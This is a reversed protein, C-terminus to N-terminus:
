IKLLYAAHSWHKSYEMRWTQFDQTLDPHLQTTAASDCYDRTNSSILVIPFGFDQQRLHDALSFYEEIIVCDKAQEGKRSPRKNSIVRQMALTNIRDEASLELSNALVVEALQRLKEPLQAGAFAAWPSIPTGLAQCATEFETVDREMKRLYRELEAEIDTAHDNFEKSIMSSRVVVAARPQVGCAKVVRGVAPLEGARERMPARIVDLAACTDLLLVPAPSRLIDEAVQQISAM